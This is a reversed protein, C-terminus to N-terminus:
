KILASFWWFVKMRSATLQNAERKPSVIFYTPLKPRHPARGVLRSSAPIDPYESNECRLRGPHMTTWFTLDNKLSDWLSV